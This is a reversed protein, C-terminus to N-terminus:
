GNIMALLILFVIIGVTTRVVWNIFGEFTKEQDTIDMEGHTHEAM